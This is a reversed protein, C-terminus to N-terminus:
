DTQTNKTMSHSSKGDTKTAIIYLEEADNLTHRQLAEVQRAVLATSMKWEMINANYLNEVSGFDKIIDKFYAGCGLSLQLWIWYRKDTSM